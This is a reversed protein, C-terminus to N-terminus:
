ISMYMCMRMCVWMCMCTRVCLHATRPVVSYVWVCERTCMCLQATRPMMFYVYVYVYVFVYVYVYVYVPTCYTADSKWVTHNMRPHLDVM